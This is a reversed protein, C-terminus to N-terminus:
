LYVKKNQFCYAQTLSISLLFIVTIQMESQGSMLTFGHIDKPPSQIICSSTPGNSIHSLLLLPNIGINCFAIVFIEYVTMFM